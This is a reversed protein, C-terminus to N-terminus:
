SIDPMPQIRREIEDTSLGQKLMELVRAVGQAEGRALGQAIAQTELKKMAEKVPAQTLIWENFKM